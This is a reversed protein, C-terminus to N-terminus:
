RRLASADAQVRQMHAAQRLTRCLEDFSVPKSLFRYLAGANIAHVASPLGPDGTLMIRVIKPYAARIRRLFDSGALGPMREDSVVIDVTREALIALGEVASEATILTYPQRSLSRTMARLLSPEDDVFLVVPLPLEPTPKMM